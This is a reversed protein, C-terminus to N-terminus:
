LYSSSLFSRRLCYTPLFLFVFFLCCRELRHEYLRRGFQNNPFFFLVPLFDSWIINKSDEASSSYNYPFSRKGGGGGGASAAATAPVVATASAAPAASPAPAATDCSIFVGNGPPWCVFSLHLTQGNGAATEHAVAAGGRGGTGGPGDPQHQPTLAISLLSPLLSSCAATRCDFDPQQLVVVM